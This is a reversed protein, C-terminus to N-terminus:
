LAVFPLAPSLEDIEMTKGCMSLQKRNTEQVGSALNSGGRCIVHGCSSNSCDDDDDDDHNDCSTKRGQWKHPVREGEGQEQEEDDAEEM